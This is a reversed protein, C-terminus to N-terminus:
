CATEVLSGWLGIGRGFADCQQWRCGPQGGSKARKVQLDQSVSSLVQMTHFKLLWAARPM